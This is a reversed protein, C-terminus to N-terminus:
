KPIKKSDSSKLRSILRQRIGRPAKISTGGSQVSFNSEELSIKGTQDNNMLSKIPIIEPLEPNSPNHDTVVAPEDNSLRVISGVPYIGVEKILTMVWSEDLTKGAEERLNQFVHAPPIASRWMRPSAMADFMDCVTILRVDRNLDDKKQPYGSGDIREHHHQILESTDDKRRTLDYYFDQSIIPHIRTKKRQTSSMQGPHLHFSQPVLVMGIDMLLCSLTISRRSTVPQSLAERYLQSSLIATNVSHALLYGAPKGPHALSMIWHPLEPDFQEWLLEVIADLKEENINQDFFMEQYLEESTEFLEEVQPEKEITPIQYLREFLLFSDLFNSTERYKDVDDLQIIAELDDVDLELVIDSLKSNLRQLSELFSQIRRSLAAPGQKIKSTDVAQPRATSILQRYAKQLTQDELQNIKHLLKEETQKLRDFKQQLQELQNKNSNLKDFEKEFLDLLHDIGSTSFTGQFNILIQYHLPSVNIRKSMKFGFLRAEAPPMWEPITREVWAQRVNMNKLRQKLKPTVEQGKRAVKQGGRGFCDGAIVDGEQIERQSVFLSFPVKARALDM